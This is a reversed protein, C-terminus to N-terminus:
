ILENLITKKEEPVQRIEMEVGLEKIKRCVEIEEMTLCIAGTFRKSEIGPKQKIGGFNITKLEPFVSLIRYADDVNNIIIMVKARTNMQERIKVIGEEVSYVTLRTGRPKAIGLTMKTMNDNVVEDNIIYIMDVGLTKTWAFAVQGHLLRDDIRFLRIM